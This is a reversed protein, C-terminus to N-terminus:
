QIPEGPAFTFLGRHIRQVGWGGMVEHSSETPAPESQVEPDIRGLEALAEAPNGLELWGLAAM